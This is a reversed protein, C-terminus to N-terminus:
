GVSSTTNIEEIFSHKIEEVLNNYREMFEVYAKDDKNHETIKFIKVRNDHLKFDPNLLAEGFPMVFVWRDQTFLNMGSDNRRLSRILTRMDGHRDEKLKTTVLENLYDTPVSIMVLSGFQSM